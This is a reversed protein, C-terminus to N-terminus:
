EYNGSFTIFALHINYLNTKQIQKEVPLYTETAKQSFRKCNQTLM